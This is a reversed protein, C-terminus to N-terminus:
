LIHLFKEILEKSRILIRFLAESPFLSCLKVLRCLAYPRRIYSRSFYKYGESYKGFNGGELVDALVIKGYHENPKILIMREPLGLIEHEIWMVASALRLLGLSNWIEIIRQKNDSSIGELKNLVYYYDVLQRFGVGWSFLHTMIHGLQYIANFEATPIAIVSEIKSLKIYHSMQEDKSELIWQQLRKNYKPCYFKLPTYHMDVVTDKFVPFTIHKFTEKKEPFLSKVYDLLSQEDSDVWVDIDGPTRLNWEPYMFANGQGKLICFRFGATTLKESLKGIQRNLHENQARLQQVFGIWDMLIDIDPRSDSFRTPECIGLIAQKNVFDYLGKWDQIVPMPQSPNLSFRLWKLYEDIFFKAKYM